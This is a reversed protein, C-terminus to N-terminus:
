APMALRRRISGHLLEGPSIPAAHPSPANIIANAAVAAAGLSTQLSPVCRCIGADPRLQHLLPQLIWEFLQVGARSDALLLQRMRGAVVLSKPARGLAAARSRVAAADRNRSRRH